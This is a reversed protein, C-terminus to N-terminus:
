WWLLLLVCLLYLLVQKNDALFALIGATTSTEPINREPSATSRLLFWLGGGCVDLPDLLSASVNDSKLM